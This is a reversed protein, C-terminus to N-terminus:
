MTEKDNLADRMEPIEALVKGLFYFPWIPAAFVMRAADKRFEAGLGSRYEKVEFWETLGNWLMVIVGVVYLAALIGLIMSM